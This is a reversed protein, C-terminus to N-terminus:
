KVVFISMDVNVGRERLRMIFNPITGTPQFEGVVRGDEDYGSQRFEFIEQLAIEGGEVLPLM